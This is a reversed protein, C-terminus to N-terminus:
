DQVAHDLFVVFELLEELEVVNAYKVLLADSLSSIDKNYVIGFFFRLPLVSTIFNLLLQLFHKNSM